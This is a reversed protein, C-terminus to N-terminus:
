PQRVTTTLKPQKPQLNEPKRRTHQSYHIMLNPDEQHPLHSLNDRQM